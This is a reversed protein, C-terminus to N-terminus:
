WKRMGDWWLRIKSKLGAFLVEGSQEISAKMELVYDPRVEDKWRPYGGRWVYQILKQFSDRSFVYEGIAIKERDKDVILSINIISAYQQILKEVTLRNKSGDPKQKFGEPKEPFPFLKYVEGIFGQFTMGHIAGMLNGIDIGREIRYVKWIIEDSEIRKEKAIESIYNCFERAFLFYHDLLLMDTEINFFGFAIPGHSISQFELPM